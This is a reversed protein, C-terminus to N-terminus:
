GDAAAGESARQSGPEVASRFSREKEVLASHVRDLRAYTQADLPDLADVDWGEPARVTLVRLTSIWGGVANLWATPVVGNLIRAYEVQIAIEDGMTRRGFTFVGIGEVDVTFDSAKAQRM